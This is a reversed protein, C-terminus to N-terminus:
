KVGYWVIRCSTITSDKVVWENTSLMDVEYEQRGDHYKLTLSECLESAEPDWSFTIPYSEVATRFRIVFTDVQSLAVLKRMDVYSGTSPMRERGPVDVIRADFVNELPLPPVPMEGLQLDYGGTADIHFGIVLSNSVGAADLIQISVRVDDSPNQRISLSSLFFLVAIMM